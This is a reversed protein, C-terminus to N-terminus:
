KKLSTTDFLHALGHAGGKLMARVLVRIAYILFSEGEFRTEPVSLYTPMSYNVAMPQYGTMHVNPAQVEATRPQQITPTTPPFLVPAKTMGM